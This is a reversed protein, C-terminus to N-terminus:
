QIFINRLFGISIKSLSSYTFDIHSYLGEYQKNFDKVCSTCDGITYYQQFGLDTLDKEREATFVKAARGNSCQLCAYGIGKEVEEAYLCDNVDSLYNSNDDKKVFDTYASICAQIGPYSPFFHNENNIPNINTLTM